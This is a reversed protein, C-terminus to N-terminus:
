VHVPRKWLLRKAPLSLRDRLLRARRRLQAAVASWVPAAGGNLSSQYAFHRDAESDFNHLAIDIEDDTSAPTIFGDHRLGALVAAAKPVLPSVALLSSLKPLRLRPATKERYLERGEALNRVFVTEIGASASFDRWKFEIDIFGTNWYAFPRGYAAALIAGHLSGTLVFSAGAIKEILLKLAIENAAVAPSVLLDCGSQSLLDSPRRPDQMHPVCITKGFAESASDPKVILPTLLGPDGLVMNEPLGILDRTLPGRVGHFRCSELLSPTIPTDQRAGCGWYVIRGGRLGATYRLDEEIRAPCIVSGILHFVDASVRPLTLLNKAHLASLYDGFNQTGRGKLFYQIRPDLGEFGAGFQLDGRKESLATMM